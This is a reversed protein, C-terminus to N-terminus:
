SYPIEYLQTNSLILIIVKLPCVNGCQLHKISTQSDTCLSAMVTSSFVRPHVWHSM